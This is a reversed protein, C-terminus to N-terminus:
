SNRILLKIRLSLVYQIRALVSTHKTLNEKLSAGTDSRFTGAMRGNDVELSSRKAERHVRGVGVESSQQGHGARGRVDLM